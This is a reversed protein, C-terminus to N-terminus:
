RTTFIGNEADELKFHNAAHFNFKHIKILLLPWCKLFSCCIPTGTEALEDMKHKFTVSQKVKFPARFILAIFLYWYLARYSKTIFDM